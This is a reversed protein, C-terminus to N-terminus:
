EYIAKIWVASKSYFEVLIWWTFCVAKTQPNYLGLNNCHILKGGSLYCCRWKWWKRYHFFSPEIWLRFCKFLHQIIDQDVLSVPNQTVFAKINMYLRFLCVFCINTESNEWSMKVRFQLSLYIYLIFQVLYSRSQVTAM